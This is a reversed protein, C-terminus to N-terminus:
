GDLDKQYQRAAECVSVQSAQITKPTPEGPRGAPAERRAQQRLWRQLSQSEPMAWYAKIPSSGHMGGLARSAAPASATQM